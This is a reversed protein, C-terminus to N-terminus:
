GHLRAAILQELALADAEFQRIGEALKETAMADRNVDLRFQAESLQSYIPVGHM